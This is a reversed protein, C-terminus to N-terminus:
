WLVQPSSIKTGEQWYRIMNFELFPRDDTVFPFDKLTSPVIPIFSTYYELPVRNWETIDKAIKQDMFAKRLGEESFKIPEMSGLVHMGVKNWGPQMLTHPYVAAFTSLLMKFTTWDHVGGGKNPFPIWHAMVGGPKLRSRALEIFDKSYLHNVGASDVPPPPDITIVDFREDTLKLFNRGDNNLMRGKPYNRVHEADAYFYDFAGLVENVLEVVTVQKGYSIASRYTTGMGFCIVLTDEPDPHILLPLHAMMKTDTVKVTMGAGNVLLRDNMPHAIDKLVTTVGQLGPQHYVVKFTNNHRNFNRKFRNTEATQLVTFGILAFSLIGVVGMAYQKQFRKWTSVFVIMLATLGYFVGLLYIAQFYDLFAAIGFGAILSGFVAGMTNWAYARAILVGEADESKPAIMKTALPFTAGSFFALPFLLSVAQLYHWFLSTILIPTNSYQSLNKSIFGFLILAIVTWIGMGLQLGALWLSLSKLRNVILSMAWSGAAIGLLYFVVIMAFAYTSNGIMIEMARTWLVESALAIAGSAALVVLALKGMRDLTFEQSSASDAPRLQTSRAYKLGLYAVFFNLSAACLTTARVGILEILVFSAAIIGLAAGFTNAAYLLGVKWSHTHRPDRRFFDTLLPLTAGMLTTPVVLLIFSLIARITLSLALPTEASVISTFLWDTLMAFWPFGIAFLGIGLELYAYTLMPNAIKHLRRGVIYSGLALGLMFSALVISVS